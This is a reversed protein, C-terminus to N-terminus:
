RVFFKPLMRKLANDKVIFHHFLAMSAHGTVLFAILWSLGEHAEGVFGAYRSGEVILNPVNFLSFFDLVDGRGNVAVWGTLPILFLLTYLLVEMTMLAKQQLVSTQEDSEIGPRFFRMFLLGLALPLVLLGFSFHLSPIDDSEIFQGIVVLVIAWHFFKALPHYQSNNM